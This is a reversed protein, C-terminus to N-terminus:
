PSAGAEIVDGHCGTGGCSVGHLGQGRGRPDLLSRAGGEPGPVQRRSAGWVERQPALGHFCPGWGRTTQNELVDAPSTAPGLTELRQKPFRGGM